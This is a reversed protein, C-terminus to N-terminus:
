LDEKDSWNKPGKLVEQRRVSQTNELWTRAMASSSELGYIKEEKKWSFQGCLSLLGWPVKRVGPSRPFETNQTHM